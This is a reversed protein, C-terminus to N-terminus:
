SEKLDELTIKLNLKPLIERSKLRKENATLKKKTTRVLHVTIKMIKTLNLIKKRAVARLTMRKQFTPATKTMKTM